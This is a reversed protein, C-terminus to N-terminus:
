GFPDALAGLSTSKRDVPLSLLRPRDRTQELWSLPPSLHRLPHLRRSNPNRPPSFVLPPHKQPNRRMSRIRPGLHIFKQFNQSARTSEPGKGRCSKARVSNLGHFRGVVGGLAGPFALKAKPRAHFGLSPTSQDRTTTRASTAAKQRFTHLAVVGAVGPRSRRRGRARMRRRRGSNRAMRRFPPVCLPVCSLSLQRFCDRGSRRIAM